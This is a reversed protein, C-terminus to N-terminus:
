LISLSPASKTINHNRILQICIFLNHLDYNFIALYRYELEQPEPFHDRQSLINDITYILTM